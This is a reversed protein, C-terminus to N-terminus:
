TSSSAGALLQDQGQRRSKPATSVTPSTGIGSRVFIQTAKATPSWRKLRARPLRTAAERTPLQRTSMSRPRTKSRPFTVPSIKPLRIQDVTASSAQAGREAWAFSLRSTNTRPSATPPSRNPGKCGTSARVLIERVPGEPLDAAVASTNTALTLIRSRTGGPRKDNHAM